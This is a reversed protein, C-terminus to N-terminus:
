KQGKPFNSIKKLQCLNKSKIQFNGHTRERTEGQVIARLIDVTKCGHLRVEWVRHLTDVSENRVWELLVGRVRGGTRRHGAEQQSATM